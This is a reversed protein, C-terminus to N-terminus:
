QIQVVETIQPFEEFLLAEVGMKMTMTASPCTGCAGTLKVEVKNGNFGLLVIDGGDARLAPRIYEELVEEVEPISPMPKASENPEPPTVASPRAEMEEPPGAAAFPSEVTAEPAHAAQPVAAPKVPNTPDNKTKPEQGGLVARLKSKFKSRLGLRAM